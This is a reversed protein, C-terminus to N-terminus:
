VPIATWVSDFKGCLPFFLDDFAFHRIFIVPFGIAGELDM